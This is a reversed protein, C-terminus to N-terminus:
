LEETGSPQGSWRGDPRHEAAHKRRRGLCLAPNGDTSRDEQPRGKSQLGVAGDHHSLGGLEARSQFLQHQARSYLLRRRAVRDNVMADPQLHRITKMVEAATNGWDGPGLGDFWVEHISGYNNLLEDMQSKYFQIYRPHNEDSDCDPHKWDRPSYYFGFDMENARAAAALMRTIDKKYPTSMMDYDTVASDFMSFGGHHKTTFVIYSVGAAKAMKMMGDPDFKVPNFTRYQVDYVEPELQAVKYPKGDTRHSPSNRSHGLQQGLQSSPGWHIFMGFRQDKWAEHAAKSATPLEISRDVKYEQIENDTKDGAAAGSCLPGVLLM